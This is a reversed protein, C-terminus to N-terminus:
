AAATDRYGPIAGKPLFYDKAVGGPCRFRQETPIQTSAELKEGEQGNRNDDISEEEKRKRLQCVIM